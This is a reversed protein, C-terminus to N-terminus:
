VKPRRLKPVTGAGVGVHNMHGEDDAKRKAQWRLAIKQLEIYALKNDNQFKRIMGEFVIYNRIVRGGQISYAYDSNVLGCEVAACFREFGDLYSRVTSLKESDELIEAVAKEPLSEGIGRFVKAFEMTKALSYMKDGTPKDPVYEFLQHYAILTKWHFEDLSTQRQAQLQGRLVVISWLGAIWVLLESTKVGVDFPDLTHRSAFVGIAFAIVAVVGVVLAAKETGVTSDAPSDERTSM